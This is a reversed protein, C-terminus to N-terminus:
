RAFRARAGTRADWSPRQATPAEVGWPAPYTPRAPETAQPPPPASRPYAPEAYSRQAPMSSSPYSSVPYSSVPAVGGIDGRDYAPKPSNYTPAAHRTRYGSPESPMASRDRAPADYAPAPRSRRPGDAPPLSTVPYAVPGSSVPYAPGSVPYAPGSVPYAPGSVPRTPSHMPSALPRPSEQAPIIPSAPASGTRQRPM